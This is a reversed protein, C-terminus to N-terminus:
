SNHPNGEGGIENDLIEASALRKAITFYDGEGGVKSVYYGPPSPVWLARGGSKQSLKYLFSQRIDISDKMALQLLSGSKKWKQMFWMGMNVLGSSNYLTGLHPGSLSLFSYMRILYPKMEPKALASRIIINGLSHGIFSIRSPKLSYMEIHQIIENVLRDTMTEFDAFTDGQNRESMLFEFNAGPLGLELYTKVLRLDASNGDLGHVCVVLHVSETSLNKFNGDFHFYPITSALMSFESYFLWHESVQHKFQEKAKIFDVTEDKFPKVLSKVEYDSSGNSNPGPGKNPTVTMSHSRQHSKASASNLNKTKDYEKPSGNNSRSKRKPLPPPLSNYFSNHFVQTNSSNDSPTQIKPLPDRFEKPPLPPIEEYFNSKNSDDSDKSNYKTKRRNSNTEKKNEHTSVPPSFSDFVDNLDADEQVDHDVPSEKRFWLNKKYEEKPNGVKVKCMKDILAKESNSIEINDIEFSRQIAKQKHLKKLPTNAKDDNTCKESLVKQTSDTESLIADKVVKKLPDPIKHHIVYSEKKTEPKTIKVHSGSIRISSNTIPLPNNTIVPYSDVVPFIPTSHLRKRARHKKKPEKQKESSCTEYQINLEPMSRSRKSRNVKGLEKKFLEKIDKNKNAGQCIDPMSIASSDTVLLSCHKFVETDTKRRSELLKKDKVEPNQENDEVNNHSALHYPVSKSSEIKKYGTLVVPNNAADESKSSENKGMRKKFLRSTKGGLKLKPKSIENNKSFPKGVSSESSISGSSSKRITNKLKDKLSNKRTLKIYDNSSEASHPRSDESDVNLFPQIFDLSVPCTVPSCHPLNRAPIEQYHDEYIIPFSQPDGDLDVCEVELPPITNFYKSSRLADSVQNYKQISADNCALLAHRANEIIFFAEAFRKVRKIHHDRALHHRIKEQFIVIELFQQWLIVNEACLQAIDSTAIAVLEDEEDTETASKSLKNLKSFCDSAKIGIRLKQRQPLLKLFSMLKNQLSEYSSLLLTCIEKHISRAQILRPSSPSVTLRIYAQHLSVLTGHITLTVSCLHFYDFLVPLHHHLGKYPNFHLNLIRTHICHITSQQDQGYDSDTFWLEVLLQFEAKGISDAIKHGDVLMHIRFLAVDDLLVDENRYLIQFTKSVAAGNIICAPFVYGSSINNRPLSVEVKPSYKTNAKLNLRIQYFGRQFLDVNYFKHLETSFEFTAQLEGM